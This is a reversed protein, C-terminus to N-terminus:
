IKKAQKIFDKMLHLYKIAEYDHVSNSGSTMYATMIHHGQERLRNITGGM